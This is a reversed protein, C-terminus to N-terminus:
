IRNLIRVVNFRLWQNWSPFLCSCLDEEKHHKNEHCYCCTVRPLYKVDSLSLSIMTLVFTIVMTALLAGEMLMMGDSDGDFFVLMDGDDLADRSKTWCQKQLTLALVMYPPM